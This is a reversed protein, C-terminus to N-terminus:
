RAPPQRLYEFWAALVAAKKDGSVTLVELGTDRDWLKVMGEDGISLIRQGDPSFAVSRVGERHPTLGLLTRIPKGTAAEWLRVTNDGGGSVVFRGDRSFAVGRVGWQHGRLTMLERASAVDWLKVTADESASALVKGDPSFALDYVTFDHGQLDHALKGTSTDGLLIGHGVVALWRGDPSFTTTIIPDRSQLTLMERGSVVDWVKVKDFHTLIPLLTTCSVALLRGNPSFALPRIREGSSKLDRLPKMTALDWVTVTDNGVASALWRQARDLVRYKAREPLGPPLPTPKPQRVDWIRLTRDSGGTVLQTGDPNFAVVQVGSDPDLFGRVQARHGRLAFREKGSAADRVRVVLDPSPVALLSADPSFALRDLGGSPLAGGAFRAVEQGKEADWHIVEGSAGAAVLRRGDPTFTLGGVPGTTITFREKGTAPDHVHIRGSTNEQGKPFQVLGGSWALSQGDPSFVVRRVSEGKVTLTHRVQGTAVDWVLVTGGHHGTALRDGAPDFALAQVSGAQQAFSSLPRGEATGWVFLKEIAAVVYRGKPDLAVQDVWKRPGRLTRLVRLTNPDIHPGVPDEAPPGTFTQRLRGTAVEWIRVTGDRGGSALTKGDASFAATRVDHEHGRLTGLHRSAERLYFWEFGRPDPQGPLPTAYEELLDLVQAGEGADGARNALNMRALYLYRRALGEQESARTRQVDAETREREAVNLASELRSSYSLAVAIGVLALLALLTVGILGALVPQRRVWKVVREIPGIPRALIPKGARFRALDDALEGASAYRRARDKELCKLCITELDRPLKSQLRSPPVPERTLVMELTDFTAAAKFPPRGTLLDYLIAGLAYVDTAPGVQRIRGAAQEPAMYSPTGLIQGTLTYGADEDLRKALGFDAVKLTGDATLLINAPKLDRHVIGQEHAYQIARAITEVIRAAEHPTQPTGAVRRALSGGEMWEMVFFPTGHHEGIEFIPVINAHRLHAIAEAERQFRARVEPDARGHGTVTKLAVVRNLALQRAQYVVGMGGRGLEDLIDYGPIATPTGLLRQPDPVTIWEPAELTALTGGFRRELEEQQAVLRGLIDPQNLCPFRQLYDPVTRLPGAPAGPGALARQKRSLEMELLVLEALTALYRPDDEPPLVAEITLPTDTQWALEFRRRADEDIPPSHPM